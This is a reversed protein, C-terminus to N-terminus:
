ELQTLITQSVLDNDVYNWTLKLENVTLSAVLTGLHLEATGVMVFPAGTQTLIQQLRGFAQTPEKKVAHVFSLEHAVVGYAERMEQPSMLNAQGDARLVLVSAVPPRTYVRLTKGDPQEIRQRKDRLLESSVSITHQVLNTHISVTTGNPPDFCPIGFDRVVKSKFEAIRGKEGHVLMVNKPECMRILEEIGAADAHASFSLYEVSCKVDLYTKKDVEIRQQKNRQGALLKAGVTGVSCYGPILVMNLPNGAWKKFVELSTGAHLMGPTAFLVMPGPNNAFGAEFPKIHQFDFMNREVFASKIKQNTWNVFQRYYDNARAALGATFYVPVAQLNMRQWYTEILICLEQVRGLAFVPILVKGGKEVTAHVRALFAKERVRKSDRVFTCYTSETILLDPRVKDIWASGLHRDPTMNYDGTYVVSQQGVRVEFMAAGLVHGAYYATIELQDDVQIRQMVQMPVVKAMCDRINQSTFFSSAAEGKREVALKRFDELLIPCIARTPHTMYIPGDYGCIETFYPLAGCHDLHFHSILVADIVESFNGSPTIFSFDPFRRADEYGM